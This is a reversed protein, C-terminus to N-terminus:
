GEVLRDLLPFFEPFSIGVCQSDKIQTEGEAGLAAVAMAMAIRHDGRSEVKAGKLTRKAATAAASGKGENALGEVRLGDPFEHVTAGMARLATAIAAIRDSEKVRLEAADRIEIGNETFPGLAALMPLEDIMEATLAGSIKGGALPKTYTVALDGVLEGDRMQVSAVHIAAGMGILFDLIRTRTPNLGVDHIMLSSGPLILAAAIFFVASSLDGPVHLARPVLKPRGHIRATGKTAVVRGGFERLAVELHDRTAVPERFSTEGPAFLSALLVCSKVQASAIPSAYDIPHLAAGTIKLPAFADDKAEIAAGMARLPDLIRRMPRKRLSGDGTIKSTFKQGALAGTLLRLTTGSNEADLTGPQKWGDLGRGAIRLLKRPADSAATFPNAAAPASPDFPSHGPDASSPLVHLPENSPMDAALARAAPGVYASPASAIASGAVERTQMAVGLRKLCKLTSQCDQATAYNQIESTGEALAALIAYRHSISKDGPLEVLGEIKRAPAIKKTAMPSTTAHQAAGDTSGRVLAFIRAHSVCRNPSQSPAYSCRKANRCRFSIYRIEFYWGARNARALPCCTDDVIRLRERGAAANVAMRVNHPNSAKEPAGTLALLVCFECFGACFWAGLEAV